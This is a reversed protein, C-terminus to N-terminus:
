FTSLASPAYAEDQQSDLTSTFYEKIAECIAEAAASVVEPKRLEREESPHSLHAIEILTAPMDAGRLVLCPAERVGRDEPSVKGLLHRHVLKALAQSKARHVEQICDWPLPKERIEWPGRRQQSPKSGPGTCPSQYFVIVGRAQHRFGGGAHISVFIDARHHNAQATRHEIDVTYDDNRTLHVEYTGSLIDQMKQAVSLTVVKEALGSPGVAGLDHGGHGPDVVIIKRRPIVQSLSVAKVPLADNVVLALGLLIHSAWWVCGKAEIRRLRCGDRIFKPMKTGM